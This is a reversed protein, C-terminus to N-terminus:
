RGEALLREHTAFVEEETVKRGADMRQMAANVEERVNAEDLRNLTELYEALTLRGARDMTKLEAKIEALSMAYFHCNVRPRGFPKVVSTPPPVQKRGAANAALFGAVHVVAADGDADGSFDRFDLAQVPQHPLKAFEVFHRHTRKVAHIERQIFEHRVDHMVTKFLRVPVADGNVDGDRRAFEHRRHRIAAALEIREIRGRRIERGRERLALDAPEADM